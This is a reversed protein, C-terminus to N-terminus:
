LKERKQGEYKVEFVMIVKGDWEKEDEEVERERLALETHSHTYLLQQARRETKSSQRAYLACRGTGYPTCHREHGILSDIWRRLDLWISPGPCFSCPKKPTDTRNPFFFFFSCPHWQHKVHVWLEILATLYTQYEAQLSSVCLGARAGFVPRWMSTKIISKKQQKKRFTIWTNGNVQWIKHGWVCYHDLLVCGRIWERRAGM